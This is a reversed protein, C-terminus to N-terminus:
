KIVYILRIKGTCNKNEERVDLKVKNSFRVSNQDSFVTVWYTESDNQKLNKILYLASNKDPDVKLVNSETCDKCEAIKKEGNVYVALHSKHDIATDSFTFNLTVNCSLIGTM